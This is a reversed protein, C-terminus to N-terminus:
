TRRGPRAGHGACRWRSGATAPRGRRACGPPPSGPRPDAEVRSPHDLLRVVQVAAVDDQGGSDSGLGLAVLDDDRRRQLLQDVAIGLRPEVLRALGHQLPSDPLWQGNRDTTQLLITSLSTVSSASLLARAGLPYAAEASSKDLGVYNEALSTAAARSSVVYRLQSLQLRQQFGADDDPFRHLMSTM